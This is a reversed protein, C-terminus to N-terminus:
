RRAWWSRTSAPRRSSAGRREPRTIGSEAVVVTGAPCTPWCASPPASTSRWPTCTATTSASAGRGRGRGGDRGREEDHVEVLCDMGLDAAGRGDPRELREPGLAAVILLVADAGAARAELLQYDDVVFDKRLLPLDCAARAEVLDDLSGGFHNPETLVSCRRPRRGGPLRPRGRHRERGPPHARALPEGAEDRRDALHGRRHAGGLLPPRPARAGPARRCSPAPLRASAGRGRRGPHARRRDRPLDAMLGRRRAAPWARTAASSPRSGSARPAATSARARGRARGAELDPAVGPWGSARRGREAGGRRARRGAAGASCPACCTPTTRRTAAPSRATPRAARLRARGPGRSGRARRRREGGRRRQGRRHVARGHGDRGACWWRGSAASSAAAGRGHRECTPRTSQRGAAPAPRGAPNTLPGLLNFITRVGLARRVPVIHRFAPHHAPAFMFGLGPRRWAARSRRRPRPRHARRAGGARGRQRVRPPRATATSPWRCARGRGGRLDAATSINFRALARRRHRLHRHLPGSPAPVREARARVTAALGALEAATEGKARLAILFGATQAEDAEGAM